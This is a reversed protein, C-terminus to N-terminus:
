RMYLNLGLFQPDDAAVTSKAQILYLNQTNWFIDPIPVIAGNNVGSVVDLSALVNAPVNKQVISVTQTGTGIKLWHVQLRLEKRRRIDIGFSMGDSGSYVNRLTTGINVFAPASVNTGYVWDADPFQTFQSLPNDNVGMKTNLWTYFDDSQKPTHDFTLVTYMTPFGSNFTQVGLFNPLTNLADLVKQPLGGSIEYTTEVM